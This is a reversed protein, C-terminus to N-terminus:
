SKTASIVFLSKNRAPALWRTLTGFPSPPDAFYRVGTLGLGQSEIMDAFTASSLVNRVHAYYRPRGTVAFVLREMKRYLAQGNPMSVILRGGPKLLRCLEGLIEDFGEVYELVSSSLIVDFEASPWEKIEDLMAQRFETNALGHKAQAANCLDIMSASGDIGLVSGGRQAAMFSFIGSGCGADLVKDGPGVADNILTQWLQAREQFAPSRDYGQAFSTAISDHWGVAGDIAKM